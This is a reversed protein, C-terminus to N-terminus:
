KDIITCFVAVGLLATMGTVCVAPGIVPLVKGLFYGGLAIATGAYFVSWIIKIKKKCEM